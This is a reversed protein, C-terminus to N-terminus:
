YKDTIDALMYLMGVIGGLVYSMVDFQKYMIAFLASLLCIIIKFM